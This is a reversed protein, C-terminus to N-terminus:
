NLSLRSVALGALDILGSLVEPPGALNTATLLVAKDGRWVRVSVQDGEHSQLSGDGIVPETFKMSDRVTWMAIQQQLVEPSAFDTVIVMLQGGANSFFLRGWISDRGVMGEAGALGRMDTVPSARGIVLPIASGVEEDSLLAQMDSEGFSRSTTNSPASTPSPARCEPISSVSWWDGDAYVWSENTNDFLLEGELYLDTGVVGQAANVSVDDVRFELNGSGELGKSELFSSMSLGAAASFVSESCVAKNGSSFFAYWGAWDEGSQAKAQSEARSRLGVETSDSSSNSGSGCAVVLASLVTLALIPWPSPM